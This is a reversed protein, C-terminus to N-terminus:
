NLAVPRTQPHTLFRVDNMVVDMVEEKQEKSLPDILAPDIPIGIDGNLTGNTDASEAREDQPFALARM